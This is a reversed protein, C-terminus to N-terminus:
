LCLQKLKQADYPAATGIDNDFYVFVDHDEDWKRCKEAWENLVADSYSGAYKGEPGHLRIYIFDATVELPSLHGGLDYICFACNHKRLLEYVKEDYWSHNRFEFTYRFHPPLKELFEELRQLNLQWGPPLQFLIPGLNEQLGATNELFNSLSEAPDKLKKMHTIYRSAKVSFLFDDAVASGWNIFTQKPPLRYFPSNLEVTDFFKRYYPFQGSAPTGEPYFTGKWHKYSWGSTGIRIRHKRENAM